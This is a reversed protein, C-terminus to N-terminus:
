YSLKGDHSKQKERSILASLVRRADERSLARLVDANEEAIREALSPKQKQIEEREALVLTRVIEDRKAKARKAMLASLGTPAIFAQRRAKARAIEALRLEEKLEEDVVRGSKVLKLWVANRRLIFRHTIPNYGYDSSLATKQGECPTAEGQENVQKDADKAEVKEVLPLQPDVTQM